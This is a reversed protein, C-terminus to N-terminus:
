TAISLQNAEDFLEKPAYTDIMDLIWAVLFFVASIAAAIGAVIAVVGAILGCVASVTVWAAPGGLAAYGAVAGFFGAVVGLVATIGGTVIGLATFIQNALKLGSPKGDPAALFEKREEATLKQFQNNFDEYSIKSLADLAGRDLSNILGADNASKLGNIFRTVAGSGQALHAYAAPSINNVLKLIAESANQFLAEGPTYSKLTRVQNGKLGLILYQEGPFAHRRTYIVEGDTDNIPDGGAKYYVRDHNQWMTGYAGFKILGGAHSGWNIPATTGYPYRFLGPPVVRNYHPYKLHVFDFPANNLNLIATIATVWDGRGEKTDADAAAHSM